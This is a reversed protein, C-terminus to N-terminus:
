WELMWDALALVTAREDLSMAQMAALFAMGAAYGDPDYGDPGQQLCWAIHEDELNWDDAVIHAVGGVPELEDLRRLLTVALSVSENRVEPKGYGSYCSECM